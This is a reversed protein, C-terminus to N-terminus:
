ARKTGRKVQFNDYTLSIATTTHSEGQKGFKNGGQYGMGNTILNKGGKYGKFAGQDGKATAGMGVGQHFGKQGQDFQGGQKGGKGNFFIDNMNQMGGNFMSKDMGFGGMGGMGMGMGGMGMGMGMGGMGMGGGILGVNNYKTAEVDNKQVFAALWAALLILFM